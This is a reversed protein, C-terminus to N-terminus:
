AAEPRPQHCAIVVEGASLAELWSLDIPEPESTIRYWEATPGDDDLPPSSRNEM